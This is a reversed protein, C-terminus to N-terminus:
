FGAVGGGSGDVAITLDYTISGPNWGFELKYTQGRIVKVECHYTSAKTVDVDGVANWKAVSPV